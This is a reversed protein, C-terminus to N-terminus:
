PTGTSSPGPIPLGYQPLSPGAATRRQRSLSARLRAPMGAPIGTHNSLRALRCPGYLGTCVAWVACVACAHEPQVTAHSYVPPGASLARVLGYLVYLVCTSYLRTHNSLSSVRIYQGPGPCDRGALETGHCGARAAAGPMRFERTGNV